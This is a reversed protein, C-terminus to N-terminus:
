PIVKKLHPGSDPNGLCKSSPTYRPSVEVESWVHTSADNVTPPYEELRGGSAALYVPCDVGAERYAEVARTVEYTMILLPLLSSSPTAKPNVSSYESAVDPSYCDGLNEALVLNQSLEPPKLDNKVIPYDVFDRHLHQTTNTEFTVNKPDKM